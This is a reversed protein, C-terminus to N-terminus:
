KNDNLVYEIDDTSMNCRVRQLYINKCPELLIIKTAALSCCVNLLQTRNLPQINEARCLFNYTEIIRNLSTEEMGSKQYLLTIAKMFMKEMKSSHTLLTIKASSFMQKVAQDVNSITVLNSSKSNKASDREALETARRCIELARRADGSVAAVKRAAYLIADSEFVNLEQLRLRVIEELEGHNYPQFILRSLGLRSSIKSMVQEPLNMANAIAIVIWKSNKKYPWDFLNYLVDQKKTCLMDLFISRVFFKKWNNNKRVLFAQNLLFLRKVVLFRTKVCLFFNKKPMLALGQNLHSCPKYFKM